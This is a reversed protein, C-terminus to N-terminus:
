SINNVFHSCFLSMYLFNKVPLSHILINAQSQDISVNKVSQDIKRDIHIDEKYPPFGKIGFCM